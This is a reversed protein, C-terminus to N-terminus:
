FESVGYRLMYQEVKMAPKEHEAVLKMINYLMRPDSDKNALPTHGIIAIDNVKCYNLLDTQNINPHFEIQNAVPKIEVNSVIRKMQTVNFNTLGLSRVKGQQVLGEMAHYTDVFDIDEYRRKFDYQVNIADLYIRDDIVHQDNAYACYFAIPYHM